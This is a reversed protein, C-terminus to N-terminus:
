QSLLYKWEGRIGLKTVWRRIYARDLKGGSRKLVSLADEFDRPRGVKLKQLSFDEPAVIWYLQDRIRKRRRRRFLERDHIDRPRMLDVTVGLAHLRLQSGRLLPNSDLWQASVTMGERELRNGVRSLESEGFCPLFTSISRPARDEGRPCHGHESSRM